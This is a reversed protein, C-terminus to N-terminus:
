NLENNGQGSVKKPTASGTGANFRWGSPATLILTTSTQVPFDNSVAETIVIDGLTTFAAAVGNSATDASIRAGGSGAAVRAASVAQTLNASTSTNFNGDGNYVASIIHNSVTLSSIVFTAQGATLTGTGLTTASDKFTVTGTPTGAGPSVANPTATFTVLDGFYSPNVSSALATASNAKNVTETLTSSVSGNFNTDGGYE